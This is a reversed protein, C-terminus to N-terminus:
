GHYFHLFQERIHKKHVAVAPASIGLEFGIQKLHNAYFLDARDVLWRKAVYKRTGEELTEMFQEVVIKDNLEHTVPIHEEKSERLDILLDSGCKDCSQKRFSYKTGCKRCYAFFRKTNEARRWNKIAGYGASILYNIEDKDPQMRPVASLVGLWFIQIKDDDRKLSKLRDGLAEQIFAVFAKPNKELLIELMTGRRPEEDWPYYAVGQTIRDLIYLYAGTEQPWM